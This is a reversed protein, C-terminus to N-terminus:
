PKPSLSSSYPLVFYPLVCEFAVYEPTRRRVDQQVSVRERRTETDGRRGEGEGRQGRGEGETGAAAAAVVAVAAAAEAVVVAAAAVAAAAVARVPRITSCRASITTPRAPWRWSASYALRPLGRRTSSRRRASELSAAERQRVAAAVRRCVGPRAQEAAPDRCQRRHDARGDCQGGHRLVPLHRQLSRHETAVTLKYAGLGILVAAIVLGAAIATTKKEAARAAIGARRAPPLWDTHEVALTTLPSSQFIDRPKRSISFWDFATRAFTSLEAPDPHNERRVFVKEKALIGTKEEVIQLYGRQMLEFVVLRVAENEGGRLYAMEYPDVDAPPTLPPLTDTTDARRILWAYFLLLGVAVAGYLVLFYPGYMTGLPNNWVWDM